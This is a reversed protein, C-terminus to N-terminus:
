DDECSEGRVGELGERVLWPVMALAAVPDPHVGLARALSPPRPSVDSALLARHLPLCALACAGALSEYFRRGPANAELVLLYVGLDPRTEALWAGAEETFEEVSLM